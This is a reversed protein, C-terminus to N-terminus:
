AVAALRHVPRRDRHELHAPEGDRLHLRRAGPAALDPSGLQRHRFDHQLSRGGTLHSVNPANQPLAAPWVHQTVSVAEQFPDEGYLRQTTKTGITPVLTPEGPPQPVTYDPGGSPKGFPYAQSNAATTSTTATPVIEVHGITDSGGSFVGALALVVLILGTLALGAAALTYRTRSALM